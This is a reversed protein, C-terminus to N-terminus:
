LIEVFYFGSKHTTKIKSYIQCITVKTFRTDLASSYRIYMEKPTQKQRFVNFSGVFVCVDNCDSNIISVSTRCSDRNIPSAFSLEAGCDSM